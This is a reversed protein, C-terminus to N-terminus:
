KIAARMSPHPLETPHLEWVEIDLEVGPFHRITPMIQTYLVNSRDIEATFGVHFWVAKGPDIDSVLTVNAFQATAYHRTIAVGTPATVAHIRLMQESRFKSNIKEAPKVTEAGGTKRRTFMRVNCYNADRNHAPMWLAINKPAVRAKVRVPADWLNEVRHTHLHEDRDPEIPLRRGTRHSHNVVKTPYRVTTEDLLRRFGLQGTM